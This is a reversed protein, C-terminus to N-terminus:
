FDWILIDAPNIGESPQSPTIQELRRERAQLHGDEGETEERGKGELGLMDRHGFKRKKILVSTM